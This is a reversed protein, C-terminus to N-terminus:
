GGTAGGNVGETRGTSAGHSDKLGERMADCGSCTRRIACGLQTKSLANTEGDPRAYGRHTCRLVFHSFITKMDNTCVIIKFKLWVTRM